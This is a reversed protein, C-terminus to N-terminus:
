VTIKRKTGTRQKCYDDSCKSQVELLSSRWGRVERIVPEQDKAKKLKHANTKIGKFDVGFDALCICRSNWIEGQGGECMSM